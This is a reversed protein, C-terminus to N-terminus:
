SGINKRKRINENSDVNVIGEGVNDDDKANDGGDEEISVDREGGDEEIAVEGEDGEQGHGGEVDGHVDAGDVENGILEGTAPDVLMEEVVEDPPIVHTNPDKGAARLMGTIIMIVDPTTLGSSTSGKFKEWRIQEPWGLPPEGVGFKSVKGSKGGYGAIEMMKRLIGRLKGSGKFLPSNAPFPLLPYDLRYTDGHVVEGETLYNDQLSTELTSFLEVNDLLTTVLNDAGSVHVKGNPSVTLMVHQIQKASAAKSARFLKKINPDTM